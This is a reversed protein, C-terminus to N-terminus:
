PMVNAFISSLASMTPSATVISTSASAVSFYGGTSPPFSPGVASPSAWGYEKADNPRTRDARRADSFEPEAFAYAHSSLLGGVM